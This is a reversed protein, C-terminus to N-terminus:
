SPECVFPNPVNAKQTSWFTSIQKPWSVGALMAVVEADVFEEVAVVAVVAAVDTKDILLKM